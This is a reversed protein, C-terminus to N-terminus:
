ARKNGQRIQAVQFRGVVNRLQQQQGESLPGEALVRPEGGSSLVRVTVGDLRELRAVDAIEDILRAPCRGRILNASGNTISVAFLETGRRISRVAVVILVVFFLLFLLRGVQAQGLM